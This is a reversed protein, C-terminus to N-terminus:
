KTLMRGPRDSIDRFPREASATGLGRQQLCGADTRRGHYQPPAVACSMPGKDGSSRGGLGGFTQLHAVASKLVPCRLPRQITVRGDHVHRGVPPTALSPDRQREPPDPAIRPEHRQVLRRHQQAAVVAVAEGGSQPGSGGRGTRGVAM